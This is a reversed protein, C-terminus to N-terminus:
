KKLSPDGDNFRAPIHSGDCFPKNGSKGCRCLTVRNRTEYKTGDASEIQVGGKVWIPGSVKKQPDELLSLSKKLKPEIIKGTKNDRVVLRGSPCNCATEMAIKKAKPNNSKEIANWTDGGRHCFRSVACFDQADMLDLEPGKLTQALESYKANGATEEGNFGAAHSGDCFPKKRSKGCRCLAFSEKAPFSEGDTYTEPEDESGLTIIEKKLPLNGTVLYPGNKSVVIKNKQM